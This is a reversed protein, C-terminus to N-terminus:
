LQTESNSEGAPSCSNRSDRQWCVQVPLRQIRKAMEIAPRDRIKEVERPLFDPFGATVRGDLRGFQPSTVQMIAM